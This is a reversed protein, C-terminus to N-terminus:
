LISFVDGVAQYVAWYYPHQFPKTEMSKVQAIAKRLRQHQGYAYKAKDMDGSDKTKEYQQYWDTGWTNLLQRAEVNSLNKLWRRAKTLAGAITEKEHCYINYFSYMFIMTSLDDVEWITGIVARAGAELLAGPLSVFEEPANRRDTDSLGTECASLVIVPRNTTQLNRQIEQLSLTKLNSSEHLLLGSREPYQWHYLGHGAYHIWSAKNLSELVTHQNVYLGETYSSLHGTECAFRHVMSAEHPAFPLDNTPNSLISWCGNGAHIEQQLRLWVAISPSIAVTLWNPAAATMPLLFTRGEPVLIVQNIDAAKLLDNIQNWFRNEIWDMTTEIQNLRRERMLEYTQIAEQVAQSNQRDPISQQQRLTHYAIREQFYSSLWGGGDEEETGIVHKEFDNYNLDSEILEIKLSVDTATIVVIVIGWKSITLTIVAQNSKLVQRLNDLSLDRQLFHPLDRERIRAILEARQKRITRLRELTRQFNNNVIELQNQLYIIENSLTEFALRHDLELADLETFALSQRIARARGLDLIQLADSFRGMKVLCWVSHRRVDAAKGAWAQQGPRSIADVQLVTEAQLGKGLIEFATEWKASGIYLEGLNCAVELTSQLYENKISCAFAQQWINEAKILWKEKHTVEFIQKYLNGLTNQIHVAILSEPLSYELALQYKSVAEKAWVKNSTFGFRAAFIHATNVQGQLWFHSGPTYIKISEGYANIAEVAWDDKRTHIHLNSYVSGLNHQTRAWDTTSPEYVALTQHYAEMSKDLWHRENTSIFLLRYVYGLNNHIQAWNLSPFVIHKLAEQSASISERAWPQEETYEYLLRYTNGLNMHTLAWSHSFPVFGELAQRYSELANDIQSQQRYREFMLTYVTGACLLASYRNPHPLSVALEHVTKYAKIASEADPLDGDGVEFLTAYTNGLNFYLFIGISSNEAHHTLALKQVQLSKEIWDTVGTVEYRKTLVAGLESQIIAWKPHTVDFNSSAREFAIIAENALEEKRIEHYYRATANGLRFQVMAWLDTGEELGMLAKRFSEVSLQISNRRGFDTYLMYYLQGLNDQVLTWQPSGEPYILSAEKYNGLSSEFWNMDRTSQYLQQSVFGCNMSVMASDTTAPELGKFAQEFTELARNAWTSDGSYEFLHSYVLGMSNQVIAWDRSKFTYVTLAQEFSELAKDAWSRDWSSQFYRTYVIGASTQLMAWIISNENKSVERLLLEVLHRWEAMQEESVWPLMNLEALRDLHEHLNYSVGSWRESSLHPSNRTDLVGRMTNILEQIQGRQRGTKEGALQEMESVLADTIWNLPIPIMQGDLMREVIAVALAEPMDLPPFADVGSSDEFKQLATKRRQSQVNKQVKNQHEEAQQKCQSDGTIEFIQQYVLGLNHHANIWTLSLPSAKSIAAKFAEKAQEAWTMDKTETLRLYCIAGMSQQTEAWFFSAERPISNLAYECAKLAKEAWLVEKTEKYLLLYANALNRQGHGWDPTNPTDFENISDYIEITKKAWQIDQTDQLLSVYVNGINKQVTIWYPSNTEFSSLAQNYAALSEKVLTRKGTHFFMNHLSSGLANQAMGWEYSGEPFAQVANRSAEIANELWQTAGIINFMNEYLMGLNYQTRAWMYSPQEFVVLTSKLYEIAAHGWKTDQTIKLMTTHVAGLNNQSTAWEKSQPRRTELDRQYADIAAIGYEEDLTLECLLQYTNGLNTQVEAWEPSPAKLVSLAQQFYERAKQAWAIEHGYRFIYYSDLGAHNTVRAWEQPDTERSIQNLLYVLLGYHQYLEDM